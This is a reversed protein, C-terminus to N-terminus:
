LQRQRTHYAEIESRSLIKVHINTIKEGNNITLPTQEGYVGYHESGLLKYVYPYVTSNELEINFNLQANKLQRSYSFNGNNDTRFTDEAIFKMALFKTSQVVIRIKTNAARNELSDFLVGDISTVEIQNKECSLLAIICITFFSLIILKKM